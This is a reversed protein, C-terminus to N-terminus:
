LVNEYVFRICNIKRRRIELFFLFLFDETCIYFRPQRPRPWVPVPWCVRPIVHSWSFCLKKGGLREKSTQRSGPPLSVRSLIRSMVSWLVFCSSGDSILVKRDSHPPVHCASRFTIEGPEMHEVTLVVPGLSGPFGCFRQPFSTAQKRICGSERFPFNADHKICYSKGM